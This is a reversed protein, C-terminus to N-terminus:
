EDKQGNGNQPPNYPIIRVDKLNLTQKLENIAIQIMEDSNNTSRIKSTIESVASEREARSTTQDFLRANEASVAVREAVAQVLGIEDQTWNRKGPTRIDLVGIVEERLKIPVALIAQGSQYDTETVTQGTESAKKIEDAEILNELPTAGAVTYRFGLINEANALSAWESRIYQRYITEAESLSKQTSDFLRANEIAISVQDALTQIVDVDEKTFANPQESQIDLAGIIKSGSMLPVAMESHTNPLDPNNLSKTDQDTDLAVKPNGTATVYGVTGQAGIKLRYGRSLMNKGGQSSAASLIAYQNAEDTLFIGTHYFDFQESIVKVVRPLLDNLKRVQAIVRAVESIAQLQAARKQTRINALELQVTREALEAARAESEFTREEVRRELDAHLALLETNSKSLQLADMRSRELAKRSNHITLYSILGILFFIMTFDRAMNYPADPIPQIVGATIQLYAFIWAALASLITFLFSYRFDLLLGAVLIVIITATFSTDYLASAIGAQFVLIGWGIIAFFISAIKVYGMKLVFQLGGMVIILVFISIYVNGDVVFQIIELTICLFTTIWLAAYLYFASQTKRDDKFVPPSFFQQISKLMFTKQYRNKRRDM